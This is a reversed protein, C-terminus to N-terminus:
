NLELDDELLQDILAQFDAKLFAKLSTQLQEYSPDFITVFGLESLREKILPLTQTPKQNDASLVSDYLYFYYYGRELTEKVKRKVAVVQRPVVMSLGGTFIIETSEHHTESDHYPKIQRILMVNYWSTEKKVPGDLPVFIGAGTIIPHCYGTEMYSSIILEKEAQTHLSWATFDTLLQSPTKLVIRQGGESLFLKTALKVEEDVVSVLKLVATDEKIKLHTYLENNPQPAKPLSLNIQICPNNLTEQNGM